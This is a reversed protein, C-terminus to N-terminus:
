QETLAEFGAVIDFLEETISRQREHRFQMTLQDGGTAVTARSVSDANDAVLPDGSSDETDDILLAWTYNAAAAGWSSGNKAVVTLTYISGRVIDKYQIVKM